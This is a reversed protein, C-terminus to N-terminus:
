FTGPVPKNYRRSYLIHGDQKKSVISTDGGRQRSFEADIRANSELM